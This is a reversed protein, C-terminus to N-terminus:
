PPTTGRATQEHGALLAADFMWDPESNPTTVNEARFEGHGGYAFFFARLTVDVSIRVIAQADGAPAYDITVLPRTHLPGAAGYAQIVARELRFSETAVFLERLRRHVPDRVPRLALHYVSRGGLAEIGLLSIDYPRATVTVSGIVPPGSAAPLPAGLAPTGPTEYLSPKEGAKREILGFTNFPSLYPPADQVRPTTDLRDRPSDPVPTVYSKRDATRLVVRFHEAKVKGKRAFTAHTEYSLFPPLRGAYAAARARDYIENADLAVAPAAAPSPQSPPAQPTQTQLTQTQPSADSPAVPLLAASATFAALSVHTALRLPLPSAAQTLRLASPWAHLVIRASV